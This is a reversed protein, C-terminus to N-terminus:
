GLLALLGAEDLVAVGHKRAAGLKAAGTNEGAILYDTSRSVSGVVRGGAGQIRAAIESRPQSLTGTIVFSKGALPGAAIREEPESPDVGRARLADVVARAEPRALFEVLARAIVEGIGDIELLAAVAPEAGRDVLALLEGLSHYRRAVARAAVGGVHPIGLAALVRSFTAQARARAIAAVLNGASVEAFRDLRVLDDARLTFLDAVSAVLGADVLQRVVKEGLGDINM